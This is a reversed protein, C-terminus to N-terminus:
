RNRENRLETWKGGTMADLMAEIERTRLILSARARVDVPPDLVIALINHQRTYYLRTIEKLVDEQIGVLGYTELENSDFVLSSLNWSAGASYARGIGNNIDHVQPDYPFPESWEVQDTSYKVDQSDLYSYGASVSPMLARWRAATRFGELTDGSVKFFELAAKQVDRIRPDGELIKLAEKVGPERAREAVPDPAALSLAILLFYTM